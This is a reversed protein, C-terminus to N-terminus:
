FACIEGLANTKQVSQVLVNILRKLAFGIYVEKLIICKENEDFFKASSCCLTM